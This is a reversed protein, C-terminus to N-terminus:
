CISGIISKGNILNFGFTCSYGGKYDHICQINGKKRYKDKPNSVCIEPGTLNPGIADFIEKSAKNDLIISIKKDTMQPPSTDGLEGGYIQYNGTFKKYDTADEAFCHLTLLSSFILLNIPKM